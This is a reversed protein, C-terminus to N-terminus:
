VAAARVSDKFVLDSSSIAREEEEEESASSPPTWETFYKVMELTVKPKDMPALHGADYIRFFSFNDAYRAEGVSEGDGRLVVERDSAVNFAEKGSWELAMTWAKNGIWNCIFDMDGAYILVKVGGELLKVVQQDFNKMWDSAFMANVTQNCDQWVVEEPVGLAEKVTQNNMFSEINSFDYCLPQKECKLRIDYPNMGSLTYPAFMLADCIQQAQACSETENQCKEIAKECTPFGAKELLYMPYSIVPKGLKKKAYTYALEPYYKFQVSPVTLGNGVAAGKLNLEDMVASAVAPVYHGGYSEGFIYLPLDRLHEHKAFFDMLFGGVHRSVGKENKDEDAISGYSYGVGCPQDIYIISAKENWGYENLRPEARGHDLLCPGNEAFLATADSCGPGGTMWLIVPDEKPNSRSEFFWYFMNLDRTGTVQYYGAEQEVSPDCLNKFGSHSKSTRTANLQGVYWEGDITYEIGRETPQHRHNRYVHRFLSKEDNEPHRHHHHHRHHRHFHHPHFHHPHFHRPHPHMHRHHGEHHHHGRHHSHASAFAFLLVVSVFRVLWMKADTM